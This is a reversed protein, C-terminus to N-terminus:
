DYAPPPPCAGVTFCNISLKRTLCAVNATYTCAVIGCSANTQAVGAVMSALDDPALEALRERKLTLRAM